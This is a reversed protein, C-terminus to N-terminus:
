YDFRRRWPWTLTAVLPYSRTEIQERIQVSGTEFRTPNGMITHRPALAVTRNEDLSLEWGTSGALRGIRRLISKPDRVLDEYRVTMGRPGLRKVATEATITRAIWSAATHFPGFRPMPENTDPFIKRSAWSRAVGRPDRVLHIALNRNGDWGSLWSPDLPWKSSDVLLAAEAVDATSEYLAEALGAYQGM